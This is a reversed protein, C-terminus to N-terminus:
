SSYIQAEAEGCTFHILQALHDRLGEEATVVEPEMLFLDKPGDM